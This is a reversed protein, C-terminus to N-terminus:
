SERKISVVHDAAPTSVILTQVMHRLNNELGDGHLYNVIWRLEQFIAHLYFCIVIGTVVLFAQPHWWM